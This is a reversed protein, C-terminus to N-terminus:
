YILKLHNRTLNIMESIDGSKTIIKCENESIKLEGMLSIYNLFKIFRSGMKKISDCVYKYVKPVVFVHYMSIIFKIKDVNENFTSSRNIIGVNDKIYKLCYKFIEKDYDFYTQINLNDKEDNDNHLVSCICDHFDGQLQYIEIYLDLEFPNAYKQLETSVYYKLNQNANFLQAQYVYLKLIIQKYDIIDLLYINIIRPLFIRFFNNISKMLQPNVFIQDIQQKTSFIKHFFIFLDVIALNNYEVYGDCQDPAKIEYILIFIM